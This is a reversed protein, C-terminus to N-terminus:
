KRSIDICIHKISIHVPAIHVLWISTLVCSWRFWPRSPDPRTLRAIVLPLLCTVRCLNTKIFMQSLSACWFDLKGFDPFPPWHVVTPPGSVPAFHIKGNLYKLPSLESQVFNEDFSPFAQHEVFTLLFPQCMPPLPFQPCQGGLPQELWPPFSSVHLVTLPGSLPALHM